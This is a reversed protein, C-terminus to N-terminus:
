SSNEKEEAGTAGFIEGSLFSICIRRFRKYVSNSGAVAQLITQIYLELQQHM